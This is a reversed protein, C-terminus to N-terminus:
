IKTQPIRWSVPDNNMNRNYNLVEVEEPVIKILILYKWDPFADKWYDRKHREKETNEDILSAKGKISVYGLADNHSAYYLGVSPNRKIEAIKRSRSNTAMWVALDEEPPFPNMTRIHPQGNEDRTILACYKQANMIERAAALIEEKRKLDEYEVTM